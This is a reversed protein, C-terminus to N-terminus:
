GRALEVLGYLFPPLLVLNLALLLGIGGPMRFLNWEHWYASDIEHTALLAFTVVYSWTLRKDARNTM